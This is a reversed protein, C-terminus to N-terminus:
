VRERCSARGIEETLAPFVLRIVKGDSNPTLGIDSKIIGQEIAKLNGVDYPKILLMRPEPRSIQAVAKINNQIGYAEVSVSDLVIPNAMGTRITRLEHELHEVASLMRFEADVYIEDLSM